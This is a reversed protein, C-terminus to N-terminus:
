RRSFFTQYRPISPSVCEPTVLSLSPYFNPVGGLARRRAPRQRNLREGEARQTNVLTFVSVWDCGPTVRSKYYSPLRTNVLFGFASVSNHCRQLHTHHPPTEPRKFVGRLAHENGVSGADASQSASLTCRTHLSHAGLTCKTHM